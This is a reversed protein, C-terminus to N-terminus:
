STITMVLADILPILPSLQELTLTIRTFDSGDYTFSVYGGNGDNRLNDAIWATIAAGSELVAAFSANIDYETDDLVNKAYDALDTVTSAAVGMARASRLATHFNVVMDVSAGRQCALKMAKCQLLIGQTTAVIQNYVDQTSQPKETPLPM